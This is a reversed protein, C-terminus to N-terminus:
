EFGQVQQLTIVSSELALARLKQIENPDLFHRNFRGILDLIKIESQIALKRKNLANPSMEKVQAVVQEFKLNSISKSTESSKANANMESHPKSSGLGEDPQNFHFGPTENVRASKQVPKLYLRIGVFLIIFIFVTVVKINLNLRLM